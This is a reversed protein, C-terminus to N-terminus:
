DQLGKQAVLFTRVIMRGHRFNRMRWTRSVSAPTQKIPIRARISPSHPPFFSFSSSCFSLAPPSPPSLMIGRNLTETLFRIVWHCQATVTWRIDVHYMAHAIERERERTSKCPRHKCTVCEETHTHTHAHTHFPLPTHARVIECSIAVRPFTIVYQWRSM